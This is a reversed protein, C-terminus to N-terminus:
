FTFAQLKFYLSISYWHRKVTDRKNTRTTRFAPTLLPPWPLHGKIQNREQLFGTNKIFIYKIFDCIM